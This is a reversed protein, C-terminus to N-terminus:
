GNGKFQEDDYAYARRNSTRVNYDGGKRIKILRIWINIIYVMRIKIICNFFIDLKEENFEAEVNIDLREIEKKTLIISTLINKISWMSGYMIATLFADKSGIRTKWELQKFILKDWIYDFLERSYVQKFSNKRRKVINKDFPYIEPSFFGFLYSISINLDIVNAGYTFEFTFRVPLLLLILFLLLTFLILVLLYKMYVGWYTLIGM